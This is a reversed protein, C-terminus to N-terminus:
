NTSIEKQLLKKNIEIEKKISHSITDLNQKIGRYRRRASIIGTNYIVL